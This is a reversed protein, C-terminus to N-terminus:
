DTDKLTDSIAEKEITLNEDTTNQKFPPIVLQIRKQEGDENGAAKWTGKTLDYNITDGKISTGNRTLSANSTLNIVNEFVLYEVTEARAIMLTDNIASSQQYSAPAGTCSIRNVNDDKYYIIVRDANILTTGQRIIVNGRYETLGTIENREAYDANVAIAENRNAFVPGSLVTFALCFLLPINKVLTM